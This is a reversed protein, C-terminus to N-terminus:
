CRHRWCRRLSNAYLISLDSL